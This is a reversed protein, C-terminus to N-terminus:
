SEPTATTAPCEATTCVCDPSRRPVVSPPTPTQRPTGYASCGTPSRRNRPGAGSCGHDPSRSATSCPGSGGCLLDNTPPPRSSGFTRSSAHRVSVTHDGSVLAESGTITHIGPPANTNPAPWNWSYLPERNAALPLTTTTLM